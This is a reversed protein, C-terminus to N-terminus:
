HASQKTRGQSLARNCIHMYIHFRKVGPHVLCMYMYMYLRVHLRRNRWTFVAPRTELAKMKKTFQEYTREFRAMEQGVAARTLNRTISTDMYMCVYVHAQMLRGTDQFQALVRKCDSYERVHVKDLMYMYVSMFIQIRM